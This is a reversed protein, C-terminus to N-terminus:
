GTIRSGSLGPLLLSRSGSMVPFRAYGPMDPGIRAYEPCSLITAHRITQRRARRRPLADRATDDTAPDRATRNTAHPHDDHATDDRAPDRATRDRAPTRRMMARGTDAVERGQRAWPRAFPVGTTPWIGAWCGGTASAAVTPKRVDIRKYLRRAKDHRM